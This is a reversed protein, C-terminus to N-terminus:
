RYSDKEGEQSQPLCNEGKIVPRIRGHTIKPGQLSKQYPSGEAEKERYPFHSIDSDGKMRIRSSIRFLGKIVAYIAM